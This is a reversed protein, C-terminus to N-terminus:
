CVERCRSVTGSVVLDLAADERLEVVGEAGAGAVLDEALAQSTGCEGCVVRAADSRSLSHLLHIRIQFSLVDGAGGEGMGEGQGSM